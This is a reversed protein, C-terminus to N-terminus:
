NGAGRQTWRAAPRFVVELVQGPQRFCVSARHAPGVQRRREMAEEEAKRLEELQVLRRQPLQKVEFMGFKSFAVMGLLTFVTHVWTLAYTFHFGLNFVAKNAFVIGSASVINRCSGVALLLQLFYTTAHLVTQPSQGLGDNPM